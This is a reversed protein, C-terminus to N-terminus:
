SQKLSIITTGPITDMRHLSGICDMTPCGIGSRDDLDILPSPPTANIVADMFEKL